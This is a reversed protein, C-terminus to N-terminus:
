AVWIILGYVAGQAMGSIMGAIFGYWICRLQEFTVRAMDRQGFVATRKQEGCVNADDAVDRIERMTVVIRSIM